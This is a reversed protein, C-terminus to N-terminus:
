STLLCVRTLDTAEVAKRTNEQIEKNNDFYGQGVRSLQKGPEKNTQWWRSDRGSEGARAAEIAANLSLM